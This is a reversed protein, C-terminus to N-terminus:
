FYKINFLVGVVFTRLQCKAIQHHTETIGGSERYSSTTPGM